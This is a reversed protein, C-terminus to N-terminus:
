PNKETRQNDYHRRMLQNTLISGISNGLIVLLFKQLNETSYNLVLYPFDAICHEYGSLMFTMICFVIILNDKCFVAVFMLVGCLVGDLFISLFDKSFKSSSILVVKDLIDRYEFYVPMMVGVLNGILIVLLTSAKVEGLYGIKGTYLNLNCKVIIILALSFLMSGIYTNDCKLYIVTGIGILIGSLISRKVM